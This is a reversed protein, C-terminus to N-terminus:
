EETVRGSFLFILKNTVMFALTDVTTVGLESWSITLLYNGISLKYDFLYKIDIIELEKQIRLM